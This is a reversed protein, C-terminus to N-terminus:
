DTSKGWDPSGEVEIMEMCMKLFRERYETSVATLSMPGQADILNYTKILGTMAKAHLTHKAWFFDLIAARYIEKGDSSTMGVRWSPPGPPAFPPEAPPLSANTQPQEVDESTTSSVRVLFLSYDVANCDALLKTDKQLQAKFDEAQDLTLRIKDDFEDALKSKTAESTLVGGAVDREPYFYSTPKLDWSEWKSKSGDENEKDSGYLVNEMVIHHSPSMGFLSGFSRQSCELFDTIRILLSEPNARMHDAYPILMENKFFTHEFYRPVSKVLYAGDHTRYFTSGSYGMDGLTELIDKRKAADKWITGFSAKYDKDKIAWFGRLARFLDARVLQFTLWYVWFRGLFRGFVTSKNTPKGNEDTGLIAYIISRAIILQRDAM